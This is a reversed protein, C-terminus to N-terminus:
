CRKHKDRTCAKIKLALVITKEEWIKEVREKWRRKGKENKIELNVSSMSHVLMM